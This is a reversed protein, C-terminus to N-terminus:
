CSFKSLYIKFKKNKISSNDDRGGVISDYDGHITNLSSAPGVSTSLDDTSPVSAYLNNAPLLLQHLREGEEAIDQFGEGGQASLCVFIQGATTTARDM